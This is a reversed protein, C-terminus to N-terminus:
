RTWPRTREDSDGDTSACASRHWSGAVRTPRADPSRGEQDIVQRVVTTGARDCRQPGVRRAHRASRRVVHPAHRELVADACLGPSEHRSLTVPRAINGRRWPFIAQHRLWLVRVQRVPRSRRDHGCARHETLSVGTCTGRGERHPPRGQAQRTGDLVAVLRHGHAAAFDAPTMQSAQSRLYSGPGGPALTTPRCSSDHRLVLFRVSVATVSASM